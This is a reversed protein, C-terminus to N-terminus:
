ATGSCVPRDISPDFDKTLPTVKKTAIDYLFLENETMSPTVSEPLQCGIRNFAEPTGEFLIQRGDPSFSGGGIFGEGVFVTDMKLTHANMLFCDGVETPRKALRSYSTGILLTSGDASVDELYTNQPGFTIRQTIGTAIDYKSLYNRKRWGPQRDDM